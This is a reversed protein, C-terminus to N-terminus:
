GPRRLIYTIRHLTIEELGPLRTFLRAVSALLPGKASRSVNRGVSGIPLTPRHEIEWGESRVIRAFRRASMGNITNGREWPELEASARAYWDARKGRSANLHESYARVLVRGPFAYHLGPAGSVCSLHHETPHWYSPFVLFIRGGPRLVRKCERLVARADQVHELVDFTLLADFTADDFPLHEGVGTRFDAEIGHQQAFLRAGEIFVSSVDVGSVTSFGYREAWALTRGGTFCGLDLADAGALEPTLSFGFYADWPYEQESQYKAQASALLMTKRRADDAELFLPHRFVEALQGVRTITPPEPERERLQLARRALATAMSM